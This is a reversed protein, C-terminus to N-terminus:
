WCCTGTIALARAVYATTSGTDMMLSDGNRVVQATRMLRAIAQKAEANEVGAAAPLEIRSAPRAPEVGGHVKRVLGQRAM